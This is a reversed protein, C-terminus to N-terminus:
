LKGRRILDAVTKSPSGTKKVSGELAKLDAEVAVKTATLADEAERIVADSAVVVKALDAEAKTNRLSIEKSVKSLQEARSRKAREHLAWFILGGVVLALVVIFWPSM